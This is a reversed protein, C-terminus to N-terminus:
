KKFIFLGHTAWEGPCTKRAVPELWESAKCTVKRAMWYLLRGTSRPKEQMTANGLQVPLGPESAHGSLGRMGHMLNVFGRDLLFYEQGYWEVLSLGISSAETIWGSPSRPFIHPGEGRILDLLLLHGKPRLVRAMEKLAERQGDPPIHQIVTVASVLDFAENRFPLTQALAAVLPCSLNRNAAQELMGPTADLGVPRLRREQYRALWRGTGCGVDLVLSDAPLACRELGRNWAQEQLRDITTNFWNPTGPHLVPSFGDADVWGYADAVSAWYEKASYLAKVVSAERRYKKGSPV